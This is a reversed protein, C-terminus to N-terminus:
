MSFEDAAFAFCRIFRLSHIEYDKVNSNLNITSLRITILFGETDPM